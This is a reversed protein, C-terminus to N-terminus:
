SKQNNDQQAIQAAAVNIIEPSQIIVGAYLLIKTIVETQETKTLEFNTSTSSSYLYQGSSGGTFNWIVDM